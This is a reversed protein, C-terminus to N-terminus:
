KKLLELIKNLSEAVSFYNLHHCKADYFVPAPKRKSPVRKVSNVAVAIDNPEKFFLAAVNKFLKNVLRKAEHDTELFQDLHGAIVYYPIKPDPSAELKKLFGSKHEFNMQDLSITLSKSGKLIGMITALAPIAFGMKLALPLLLLANDRYKVLNSLNSGGSPTGALILKSVVANGGLQEIYCRSVLGGMSHALISLKKNFKGKKDPQIGVAVLADKFKKANTDITTNLNEYDYTLILDVTKSQIAQEMQAAMEKTNGIIGHVLLLMNKAAAVKEKVGTDHYIAQGDKYEIWCLKNLNERGLVVKFFCLKLARFVSRNESKVEPISRITIDVKGSANAQAEGVPIFDEGDFTLPLIFEDEKLAHDLEIILPNKALDADNELDSIELTDPAGNASLDRTNDGFSLLNQWGLIQPMSAVSNIDRTSNGASSLAVKARFTDHGKIVIKGNALTTPTKSIEGAQLSLKFVVNKCFWDNVPAKKDQNKRYLDRGKGLLEPVGRAKWYEVTQGLNEIPDRELLFEENIRTSSILFKFTEISEKKGDPIGLDFLDEQAFQKQAPIEDVTLFDGNLSLIEYKPSFYLAKYYLTAGTNNKLELDLPFKYEGNLNKGVQVNIVETNPNNPDMVGKTLVEGTDGHKFIVQFANRNFQTSRNDLSLSQEWKAVGELIEVALEFVPDDDDGGIRKLLTNNEQNYIDLVDQDLDVRYKGGLKGEVLEFYASLQAKGMSKLAAQYNALRKKGKETAKLGITYPIAPISLLRADYSKEMDLSLSSALAVVSDQFGVSSTSARGLIKNSGQELIEFEAVKNLETSLGHIAGCNINWSSKDTASLLYINRQNLNKAEGLNLFKQWSDFGGLAEFQPHQKEASRFMSAQCRAYLDAYSVNPDNELVKLLNFSFMGRQNKLEFAKEQRDCAAMLLHTALPLQNSKPGQPFNKVFYGNLYSAYPRAETRDPFFFQRTKGLQVDDIAKTSGGSHCCDFITLLHAGQQQVQQLLIRIEKDALCYKGSLGSDYCVLAEQVGTPDIWDFEPAAKEQTGHGSYYLLVVDDKGAKGLHDPGLFKCINQYTADQNLLTMSPAQDFAKVYTSTLFDKMATVDNRCGDLPAVKSDPHYTDIGIFLSYLKRM